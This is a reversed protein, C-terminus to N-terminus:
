TKGRHQTAVKWPRASPNRREIALAEQLSEVRDCEQGCRWSGIAVVQHAGRAVEKWQVRYKATILRHAKAEGYDTGGAAPGSTANITPWDDYRVFTSPVILHSRFLWDLCEFASVYLDVDVDVLLAKQFPYRHLLEPTLSESFFGPVYTTNARRVVSHIRSVLNSLNHEHLANAASYAGQTFHRYTQVTAQEGDLEAPLGSFSDFGWLHGFDRVKAGIKRMGMGTYVGFAYVDKEPSALRNLLRTLRRDIGHQWSAFTFSMTGPGTAHWASRPLQQSTADGVAALRFGEGAMAADPNDAPGLV